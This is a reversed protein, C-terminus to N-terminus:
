HVERLPAPAPMIPMRAAPVCPRGFGLPWPLNYRASAEDISISPCGLNPLVVSIGPWDGCSRRATEEVAARAKGVQDGLAKWADASAQLAQASLPQAGHPSNCREQQPVYM